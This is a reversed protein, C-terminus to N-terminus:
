MGFLATWEWLNWGVPKRGRFGSGANVPPYPFRVAHRWLLFGCRCFFRSELGEHRVASLGSLRSCATDALDAFVLPRTPIGGHPRISLLLPLDNWRSFTSYRCGLPGLLCLIVSNACERKFPRRIKATETVIIQIIWIQCCCLLLHEKGLQTM